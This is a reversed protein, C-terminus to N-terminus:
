KLYDKLMRMMYLIGKKYTIGDNKRHQLNYQTYKVKELRSQATHITQIVEKQTAIRSFVINSKM